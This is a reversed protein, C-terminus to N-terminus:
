IYFIWVIYAIAVFILVLWSLIKKRKEPLREVFYEFYNLFLSSIIVDFLHHWLLINKFCLKNICVIAVIKYYAFANSLEDTSHCFIVFYNEVVWDMYSVKKIPALFLSLSRSSWKKRLYQLHICWQLAPLIVYSYHDRPNVKPAIMNHHHLKRFYNFITKFKTSFM